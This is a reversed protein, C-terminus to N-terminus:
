VGFNPRSQTRGTMAQAVRESVMNTPHESRVIMVLLWALADSCDSVMHIM